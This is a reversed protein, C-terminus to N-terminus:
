HWKLDLLELNLLRYNCRSKRNLLLRVLLNSICQLSGAQLLCGPIQCRSNDEFGRAKRALSKLALLSSLASTIM